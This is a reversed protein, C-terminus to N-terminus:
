RGGEEPRGTLWRSGARQAAAVEFLVLRYATGRLRSRIDSVLRGHDRLPTSSWRAHPFLWVFGHRRLLTELRARDRRHAVDYLVITNVM